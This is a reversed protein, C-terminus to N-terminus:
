SKFDWKTIVKPRYPYRDKVGESLGNNGKRYEGIQWRAGWTPTPDGNEPDMGHPDIDVTHWHWPYNDAPGRLFAAQRGERRLLRTIEHLQDNGMTSMGYVYLDAVGAGMHTTGSWDTRPMWSGQYPHFLLGYRKDTLSSVHNIAQRQRRTIRKGEFDVHDYQSM